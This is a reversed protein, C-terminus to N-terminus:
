RNEEVLRLRNKSKTGRLYARETAAALLLPLTGDLSAEWAARLGIRGDVLATLREPKAFREGREGRWTKYAAEIQEAADRM